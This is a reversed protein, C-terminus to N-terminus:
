RAAFLVLGGLLLLSGTFIMQLKRTRFPNYSEDMQPSKAARNASLEGLTLALSVGAMVSMVIILFLNRNVASQDQIHAQLNGIGLSILFGLNILAGIGNLLTKKM